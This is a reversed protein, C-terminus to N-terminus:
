TTAESRRARLLVTAVRTYHEGGFGADSAQAVLGLVSSGVPSLMGASRVLDAYLTMDKKVVDTAFLPRHDDEIMRKSTGPLQKSGAMSAGLVETLLALDVGQARAVTFAECLMVGNTITVANNILKLVHGAGVAGVHLVRESVAELVPRAREVVSAEGGVILHLSGNWAAEPNRLMPADIFDVGRARAQAAIDRSLVPDGTSCDVLVTGPRAHQVLGESGLFVSQIAAVSPLCTLIFDSQRALEPVSAAESAGLEVLEAVAAPNLDNVLLSHGARLINRGLGRGMTGIGVLGVKLHPTL